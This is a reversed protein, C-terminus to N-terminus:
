HTIRKGPRHHYPCVKQQILRLAEKPKMRAQYIRDYEEYLYQSLYGTPRSLVNFLIRHLVAISQDVNTNDIKPLSHKDAEDILHQQITRIADFHHMYKNAQPELTMYKARIAFRESHKSQNSIYVIFPVVSPHRRSLAICHRVSLHVGEIIMSEGRAEYLSILGSIKDMVLDNQTEYGRLIRKTHSEGLIADCAEGAQYSSTWLVPNDQVLHRMLHRVHDTSLM